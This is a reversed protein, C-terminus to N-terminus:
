KEYNQLTSLLGSSSIVRTFDWEFLSWAYSKGALRAVVHSIKRSSTMVWGYVGDVSIDCVRSFKSTVQTL